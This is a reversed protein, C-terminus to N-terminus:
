ATIRLFVRELMGPYGNEEGIVQGDAACVKAPEGRNRDSMRARKRYGGKIRKPIM